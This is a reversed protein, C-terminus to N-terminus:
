MRLKWGKTSRHQKQIVDLRYFVVAEVIILNINVKSSWGSRFYSWSFIPWDILYLIHLTNMSLKYHKGFLGPLREAFSEWQRENM